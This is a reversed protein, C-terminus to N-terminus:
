YLYISVKWFWTRSHRPARLDHNELPQLCGNPILFENKAGFRENELEVVIWARVRIYHFIQYEIHLPCMILSLQVQSAANKNITPICCWPMM